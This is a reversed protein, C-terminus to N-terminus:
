LGARTRAMQIAIPDDFKLIGCWRSGALLAEGILRHGFDTDIRPGIRVLTWIARPDDNRLLKEATDLGRGIDPDLVHEARLLALKRQVAQKCRKWEAGNAPRYGYQPWTYGGKSLGAVLLVKNIGSRECHRLLGRTLVEGPRFDAGAMQAYILNHRAVKRQYNFLYHAYVSNQRKAATQHSGWATHWM